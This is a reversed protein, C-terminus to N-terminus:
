QPAQPPAQNEQPQQSEKVKKIQEEAQQTISAMNDGMAKLQRKLDPAAYPLNTELTVALQTAYSVAAQVRAEVESLKINMMNLTSMLNTNLQEQQSKLENFQALTVLPPPIAAVEPEPPVDGKSPEPKIDDHYVDRGVQTEAPNKKEKNSM